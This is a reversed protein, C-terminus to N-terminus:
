TKHVGYFVRLFHLHGKPLQDGRLLAAIEAVPQHEVASIHTCGSCYRVTFFAAQPIDTLFITHSSASDSLHPLSGPVVSASWLSLLAPQSFIQTMGFSSFTKPKSLSDPPCILALGTGLSPIMTIRQSLPHIGYRGCATCCKRHLRRDEM